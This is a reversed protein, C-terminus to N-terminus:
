LLEGTLRKKAAARGAALIDPDQPIVPLVLGAPIRDWTQRMTVLEWSRYIGHHTAHCHPEPYDRRFATTWGARVHGKESYAGTAIHVAAVHPDRVRREVCTVVYWAHYQHVRDWHSESKPDAPIEFAVWRPDEVWGHWGAPCLVWDGPRWGATFFEQDRCAEAAEVTDHFERCIPCGYLIPLPNSMINVGHRVLQEETNRPARTNAMMQKVGSPRDIKDM